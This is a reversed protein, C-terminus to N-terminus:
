SGINYVYLLILFIIFIILPWKFDGLVNLIKFYKDKQKKVVKPKKTLDKIKINNPKLKKYKDLPIFSNNDKNNYINQISTDWFSNDLNTKIKELEKDNKIKEVSEYDSQLPTNFNKKNESCTSTLEKNYNLIDDDYFSSLEDEKELDMKYYNLERSLLSEDDEKKEFLEQIPHNLFISLIYIIILTYIIVSTRFNSYLGVIGIIIFLISLNKILKISKNDNKDIPILFELSLISILVIIIYIM